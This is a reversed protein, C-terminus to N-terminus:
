APDETDEEDIIAFAEEITSMRIEEGKVMIVLPPGVFYPEGSEDFKRDYIDYGNWKRLYTCGVYGHEKAFWDIQEKTM